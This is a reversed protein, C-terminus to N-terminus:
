TQDPKEVQPVHYARLHYALLMERSLFFISHIMLFECYFNNPVNPTKLLLIFLLKVYKIKKKYM